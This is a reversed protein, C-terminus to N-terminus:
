WLNNDTRDGTSWDVPIPQYEGSDANVFVIAVDAGKAAAVAATKDDTTSSILTTKNGGANVQAQLANIPPILFALSNTGSGWSFSVISLYSDARFQSDFLDHNFYFAFGGLVLRAM